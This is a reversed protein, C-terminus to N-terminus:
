VSSLIWCNGVHIFNYGLCILGGSKYLIVTSVQMPYTHTVRQVKEQLLINVKNILCYVRYGQITKDNTYILVYRM